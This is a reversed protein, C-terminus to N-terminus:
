AHSALELAGALEAVTPCDFIMEGRVDHGLRVEIEAAIRVALISDGGLDLFHDHIGVLDIELVEAWISAIIDEAGSRPAVYPTDINPRETGPSPLAMVDVKGIPTRPLSPLFVYVSPLMYDPVRERLYERLASVSAAEGSRFCVYAILRHDSETPQSVVAVDEVDPLTRIMTEVEGLEVRYGRVKVQRDARGALEIRGDPLFQGRDGTRYLRAGQTDKFPHPVFKQATLEPQRWYGQAISPGSVCLEGIEGDPARNLNDDLIYIEANSVPKGITV